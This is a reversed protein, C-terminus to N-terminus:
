QLQCTLEQMAKISCDVAGKNDPNVYQLIRGFNLVQFYTYLERYWEKKSFFQHIKEDIRDLIMSLRINDFNKIFLNKSWGYCTDQRLKAIDCLPSEIFDDLFDILTIECNRHFLINSLTLDGHCLGVPLIIKKSIKDLSKLSEIAILREDIFSSELNKIVSDRKQLVLDSDLELLTSKSIFFTIIEILRQTILEVDNMSSYQFFEIHNNSFCYDMTFEYRDNNEFESIILPVHLWDFSKIQSFEKQKLAQAKLRFRYNGVSSKKIELKSDKEILKLECGSQGLLTLM